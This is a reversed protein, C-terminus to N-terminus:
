NALSGGGFFRRLRSTLSMTSKRGAVSGFCGPQGRPSSGEDRVDSTVRKAIKEFKADAGVAEESAPSGGGGGGIRVAGSDDSGLEPRGIKKAHIMAHTKLWPHQMIQKLNIRRHPERQLMHKIIEGCEQTVHDPFPRMRGARVNQLTHSVSNPHAPDEFPYVGTVLLYMLVGMAWVDVAKADYKPGAGTMSPGIGLMEPCMYDPTGVGLTNVSDIHKSLGFDIIKLLQTEKEVMCNEPKLDRHCFGNDHMFVVGKVLQYFYFAMLDEPMRGGHENLLDLLDPGSILEWVLILQKGEAFVDLLRVINNHRMNCAYQVERKVIKLPVSMQGGTANLVKLAVPSGGPDQLDQAEYVVATAGRNLERTVKYRGENLVRGPVMAAM